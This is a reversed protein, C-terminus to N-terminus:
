VYIYGKLFQSFSLLDKNDHGKLFLNNMYLIIYYICKYIFM